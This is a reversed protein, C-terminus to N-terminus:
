TPLASPRHRREPPHALFDDVVGAYDAPGYPSFVEAIVNPLKRYPSVGLDTLMIDLYQQFRTNVACSRSPEFHINARKWSRVHEVADEMEAQSPLELKGQWLAVLWLAGIEASPVHMFGHNYGAFALSPLSPHVVHRYLQPGDNENELLARVEPALFPFVPAYSGVSLVVIDAPLVSGDALELGDKTLGKMESHHPIITGHAVHRYYDTPALAAASRLDPLFPHSPLVTALRAKGESGTGRGQRRAQMTFLSQLGSWFSRVFASRRHLFREAATPHAWSTMMVSGFRNFLLKTYHVGLIYRPLTWRPTRFMHHVEAAHEAAFTVIDLASKGFGVVVVRAGDFESLDQIDREVVIRGAFDEKGPLEPRHKGETYQGISVVLHDFWETREEPECGDEGTIRVRVDWGGDRERASVVEHRLRVDFGRAEVVADLYRLIQEGTPHLDPTFPWPFSSIFYGYGTNQLSVGAYSHAWVGGVRPAREFLVCQFGCRTLVDAHALGSIGSGIIAVRKQPHTMDSM